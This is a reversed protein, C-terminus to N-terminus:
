RFWDMWQVTKVFLSGDSEAFLTVVGAERKGPMRKVVVV